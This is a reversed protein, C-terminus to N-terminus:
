SRPPSPPGCKLESRAIPITGPGSGFNFLDNLSEKQHIRRIADALLISISLIKIKKCSEVMPRAKITDTIVVEELASKQIRDIAPGSFLGHTAFAYVRKAGKSKLERAAEVLTGATDIMDDVIIVDRGEVSGVLDMSEVENARIRRKILMAISCDKYGRRVMGEQFKRARYVGGADPSVVVPKILGKSEFYDLGVIQAEVNDVPVRPGFFGQIQGCHLDVAVVRDVGMAEMMRAVDAASIPVRSNMKRDQRAYGFYPIVATIKKASARRCTSIMLLLEMLHDNVPTSTPQIIYIDKGRLSDLFQINVEGDAFRGVSVRGLHTSLRKAVAAGLHENATGTFLLADGLKRAFPQSERSRWLPNEQTKGDEQSECRVPSEARPDLAAMFLASGAAALAVASAFQSSSPLWSFWGHSNAAGFPMGADRTCFNSGVGSSRFRPASSPAEQDLGHEQQHLSVAAAEKVVSRAEAGSAVVRCARALRAFGVMKDTPLAQNRSFPSSAQLLAFRSLTDGQAFLPYDVGCEATAEEFYYLGPHTDPRDSTWLWM